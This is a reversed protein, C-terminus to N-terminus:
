LPHPPPPYYRIIYGYLVHKDECFCIIRMTCISVDGLKWHLICSNPVLSRSTLKDNNTLLCLYSNTSHFVALQNWLSLFITLFLSCQNPDYNRKRNFCERTSDPRLSGPSHCRFLICVSSGLCLNKAVRVCSQVSERMM